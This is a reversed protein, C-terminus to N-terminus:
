VEDVPIAVEIDERTIPKYLNVESMRDRIPALDHRSSSGFIKLHGEKIVELSPTALNREAHTNDLLRQTM